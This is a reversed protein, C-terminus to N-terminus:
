RGFLISMTGFAALDLTHDEIFEMSGHPLESPVPPRGAAHIRVGIDFGGIRKSGAGFELGFEIMGDTRASHGGGKYRISQRGIGAGVYFGPSMTNPRGFIDKDGMFPLRYRASAGLRHLQGEVDDWGICGDFSILAYDGTLRVDGIQRGFALQLGWPEHAEIDGIGMSISGQVGVSAEWHDQLFGGSKAKDAMAPQVTMASLASFLLTTALITSRSTASTTM